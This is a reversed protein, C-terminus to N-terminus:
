WIISYVIGMDYFTNCKARASIEHATLLKSIISFHLEHM